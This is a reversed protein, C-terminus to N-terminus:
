VWILISSILLKPTTFIRRRLMSAAISSCFRCLAFCHLLVFFGCLRGDIEAVIIGTEGGFHLMRVLDEHRIHKGHVEADDDIEEALVPPVDLHEAVVGAGDDVLPEFVNVVIGAVGGEADRPLEDVRQLASLVVGLAGGHHDRLRAAAAAGGVIDREDALREFALERM